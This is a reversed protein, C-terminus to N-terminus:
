FATDRPPHAFEPKLHSSHISNAAACWYPLALISLCRAVAWAVALVFWPHTAWPVRKSVWMTLVECYALCLSFAAVYVLLRWLVSWSLPEDMRPGGLKRQEGWPTQQGAPRPDGLSSPPHRVAGVEEEDDSYYEDAPMPLGHLRRSPIYSEDDDSANQSSLRSPMDGCCRSLSPVCTHFFLVIQFLDFRMWHTIYEIGSGLLRADSSALGL